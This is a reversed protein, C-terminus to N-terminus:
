CVQGVILASYYIHETDSDISLVSLCVDFRVYRQGGSLESLNDKWVDGFAVRFELGDLVTMGEPPSLRAKSGPLLSGFISCFDQFLSLVLLEEAIVVVTM